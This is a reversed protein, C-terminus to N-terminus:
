SPESIRAIEKLFRMKVTAESFEPPVRYQMRERSACKEIFDCSPRYDRSGIPICFAQPLEICIEWTASNPRTVVLMPHKAPIYELLKSPIAAHSASLLLLGDAEILHKLLENRKMSGPLEISWGNEAFQKEFGLIINRDESSLSGILKIAGHHSKHQVAALLPQLLLKPSRRQDSGTFRGAHIISLGTKKNKKPVESLEQILRSYSNPLVKVKSSLKELRACLLEKWVDSTVFIEEAEHLIIRELTGEQWRRLRSNSVIPKLPEDLWGDRMDVIHSVNKKRSLLWAGVHASEPPSSSLIFRAEQTVELVKASNSAVLAWIIGPDPNLLWYSLRKRLKNPKRPVVAQGRCDTPDRYIGIPDRITIEQGWPYEQSRNASGARVAVVRFGAKSLWHVFRSARNNGVHRAHRWFPLLLIVQRKV